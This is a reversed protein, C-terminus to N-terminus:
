RLAKARDDLANMNQEMVKMNTIIGSEVRGLCEEVNRVLQNMYNAMGELENLRKEFTMTRSHLNACFSLRQVIDTLISHPSHVFFGELDLLQEYLSSIIKSDDGANSLSSNM